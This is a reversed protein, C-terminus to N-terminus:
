DHKDTEKTTSETSLAAVIQTRVKYIEPDKEFNDWVDVTKSKTMTQGWFRNFHANIPAGFFGMEKEKIMAAHGFCILEGTINLAKSSTELGDECLGDFVLDMEHHVLPLWDRSNEPLPVAGLVNRVYAHRHDPATAYVTARAKLCMQVLAQATAHMGGVILVKKGELSFVTETSLSVSKLAQYAATYTAVMAAADAPAVNGPVKVLRSSSVRIYRTNGGNRVLAAVRDGRKVSVVNEGCSLVHGVIDKGPIIPLRSPNIIDFSFGRRDLCDDM